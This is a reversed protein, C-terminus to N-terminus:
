DDKAENTKDTLTKGILRRSSDRILLEVPMIVEEPVANKFLQDLILRVAVQCLDQVSHSVTTIPLESYQGEALNSFGTVAVDKPVNLGKKLLRSIAGMAILDNFCVLGDFLISDNLLEDIGTARVVPALKNAIMAQKYGKIRMTHSTAMSNQEASLFVIKKCGQRILHETALRAGTENDPKVTSISSFEPGGNILALKLDPNIKKLIQLEEARPCGWWILADLPANKVLRKVKDITSDDDNLIGNILFFGHKTKSIEEEIGCLIRMAFSHTVSSMFLGINKIAKKALNSSKTTVFIGKQPITELYGKDVLERIGKHVTMYSINYKDALQRQSLLKDHPKLELNEISHVIDHVMPAYKSERKMEQKALKNM